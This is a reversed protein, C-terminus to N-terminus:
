SAERQIRPDIIQVLLDFFMNATVLIISYVLSLGIVLTYDRNTVSEVFYKALGPVAFIQEIIFSGSLIQAFLSGSIALLPILSNKLVHKFLIASTSVGKALAMRVYDARISELGSYRLLRIILSMPRLSLAVVPLIYYSPGEWLAPPLLDLWFSFILILLPASLFNPISSAANSFFQVSKNWLPKKPNISSIALIVGVFYSFLLAMLGLALTSPLTQALITNVSLGQFKYSEGLDGSLLGKMYSLYQVYIPQDLKYYAEISQKVEPSLAIEEDFPSGPLFRLIFFLLTSIVFLTLFLQLLKNFVKKM